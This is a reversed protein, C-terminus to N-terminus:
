ISNKQQIKDAILKCLKSMYELNMQYQLEPGPKSLWASDSYDKKTLILELKDLEFQLTQREIMLEEISQQLKENIYSEPSIMM